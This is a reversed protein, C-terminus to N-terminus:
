RGALRAVIPAAADLNGGLHLYSVGYRDRLALLKDVCEDVSGHLVSPSAALTAPDVGRAHSSSARHEVGRHRVRVDFMRTQFELGAPDRGAATAADRAWAVKRAFREPSMEALAALPDVDPALRPNIGVIDACRGALELIRRSGGGVLLPPRPRQAPAPLGLLGTIRYHRGTFDVPEDGFLRLLIEISEALRDVRVAPPDFPLGAADHDARLWGAGLGIEVRGGSFVDLNALAKHLLVPHRFDNCFVMGLVRLRSTAEAAVTMAVLPDMAWGGTLHDSVSVSDFGLDEIRRIEDRWRAAPRDLGPMAATFRFPRVGVPGPGPAASSGTRPTPPAPAATPAPSQAPPM